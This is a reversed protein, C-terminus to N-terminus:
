ISFHIELWVSLWPQTILDTGTKQPILQTCAVVYFEHTCWYWRVNLSIGRLTKESWHVGHSGKAQEKKYWRWGKGERWLHTDETEQPQSDFTLGCPVCRQGPSVAWCRAWLWVPLQSCSGWRSWHIWWPVPCLCVCSLTPHICYQQHCKLLNRKFIHDENMGFCWCLHLHILVSAYIFLMVNQFTCSVCITVRGWSVSASVKM